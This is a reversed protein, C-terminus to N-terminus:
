WVGFVFILCFKHLYIQSISIVIVVEYIVSRQYATSM